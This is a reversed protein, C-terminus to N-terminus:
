RPYILPLSSKSGASSARGDDLPCQRPGVRRVEFAPGREDFVFRMFTAQRYAQPYSHRYPITVYPRLQARIGATLCHSIAAIRRSISGSKRAM